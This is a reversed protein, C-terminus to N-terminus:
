ENKKEGIRKGDVTTRVVPEPQKNISEEISLVRQQLENVASELHEVGSPILGVYFDILHKLAMGRDDCFERSAFDIFWKKEKNPIRNISFGNVIRERINKIEEKM